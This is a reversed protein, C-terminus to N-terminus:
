FLGENTPLQKIRSINKQLQEFPLVSMVKASGLFTVWKLVSCAYMSM